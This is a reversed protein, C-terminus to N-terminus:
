IFGGRGHLVEKEEQSIKKEVFPMQIPLTQYVKRKM